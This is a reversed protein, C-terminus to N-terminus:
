AAEDDDHDDTPLLRLEQPLQVVGSLAREMALRGQEVSNKTLHRYRKQILQPNRHGVWEAIDTVPVNFYLMMSIFYHRCWHPRLAEAAKDWVQSRFWPVAPVNTRGVNGFLQKDEGFTGYSKLHSRLVQAVDEPLPVRRGEDKGRWKLHRIHMGRGKGKLAVHGNKEDENKKDHTVQRDVYLVKDKFHIQGRTVALAEGIRLGCGAMLWLVARYQGPLRGAVTRLEDLDPISIAANQAREVAARKSVIKNCPNDSRYGNRIAFNFCASLVDIRNLATSEAYKPGPKEHRMWHKWAEIDGPQVAGIRANAWGPYGHIVIRSISDYNKATINEREGGKPGLYEDWVDLLPTQVRDPDIYGGSEKDTEVKLAWSEAKTLTTHSKERQRGRRGGVGPERWRVVWKHPPRQKSCKRWLEMKAEYAEVSDACACDKTITAM